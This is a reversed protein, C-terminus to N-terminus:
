PGIITINQNGSRSDCAHLKEIFMLCSLLAGNQDLTFDKKSQEYIGCATYVDVQYNAGDGGYGGNKCDESASSVPFCHCLLLLLLVSENRLLKM